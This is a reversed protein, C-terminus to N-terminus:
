RTLPELWGRRNTSIKRPQDFQAVGGGAAFQSFKNEM